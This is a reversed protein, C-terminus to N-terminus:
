RAPLGGPAAPVLGDLHDALNHARLRAVGSRLEVITVGCLLFPFSWFATLPLGLLDLLLLRLLGDHAVAVLWPWPEGPAAPTGYGLVHSKPRDPAGPPVVAEITRRLEALLAEAAAHARVTAVELSEGGPAHHHVPDRRWAALEDGYRAEVEASTLGEWAGQDLELLSELPTLPVGHGAAIGTAVVRARQLPSHWVGLPPEAPLPLAPSASPTGLRGAVRGAQVEGLPSLPPDSRGQFRGETIWTTEGHRVLVLSGSLGTLRAPDAM